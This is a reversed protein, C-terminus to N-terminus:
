IRPKALQLNERMYDSFRLEKRGASQDADHRMTSSTQTVHNLHNNNKNKIITLSCVIFFIDIYRLNYKNLSLPIFEETHSSECSVFTVIFYSYITELRHGCTTAHQLKSRARRQVRRKRRLPPLIHPHMSRQEHLSVLKTLQRRCRWRLGECEGLNLTISWTFSSYHALLIVWCHIM